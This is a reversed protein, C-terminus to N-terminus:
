IKKELKLHKLDKIFFKFSCVAAYILRNKFEFNNENKFFVKCFQLTHRFLAKARGNKLFSDFDKKAILTSESNAKGILQSIKKQTLNM